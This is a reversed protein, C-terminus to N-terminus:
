CSIEQENSGNADTARYCHRSGDDNVCQQWYNGESQWMWVSCSPDALAVTPITIIAALLVFTLVRNNVAISGTTADAAMLRPVITDAADDEASLIIISGCPPQGEQCPWEGGRSVTAAIWSLVMSKGLGGEGAVLTCKGL